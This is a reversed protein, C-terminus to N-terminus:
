VPTGGCVSVGEATAIFTNAQVIVEDGKTIGLANLAVHLASTGNSLALSHKLGHMKAFDEEFKKAKKGCIYATNDLVENIEKLVEEKIGLYQTKLDVFPVNM